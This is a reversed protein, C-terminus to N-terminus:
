LILDMSSHYFDPLVDRYGKLYSGEVAYPQNVELLYTNLDTDM